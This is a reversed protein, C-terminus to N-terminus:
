RPIRRVRASGGDTFYIAGKPGVAVATPSMNTQLAQLGNGNYGFNGTGAFTHITGSADVTRIRGNNIDVIYLTGAPDVAVDIGFSLMAATAPGGDGGFGQSGNGAVTSIIGNVDVKRIRINLWDAIYVNGTSDVALGTPIFLSSQTAPMGDGNYGFNFVMGAVVTATTDPAIKIVVSADSDSAYLNHNADVALGYVHVGVTVNSGWWALVTVQTVFTTITGTSDVKRIASNGYDSIFLDGNQDVAVAEPSNLTAATAPGGDGSYGSVGTGAITTVTGNLSVKRIRNNFSDAFYLNGASDFAIHGGLFNPAISAETAPRGDGVYGGAITTVIQSSDIKRLRGNYQDVVLLNGSNDFALGFAGVFTANLAPGGDGNFGTAGLPNGAILNIIQTSQDIAWVNSYASVYLKGGALFLGQARGISASTAPGGSGGIGFQGTGAYTTITGNSDVKRVRYSGSDAIYFNGNGDPLVSSPVDLEAAVAPGNDGSTGCGSSGAFTHIVGSADVMRIRCNVTDAIYVNGALDASVGSPFALSAQTAQVGDGSYGAIGNGAITSIVGSRTIKRVRFNLQDAVLLNGQADFSLGAPGNLTALAAPGGDGSFGCTAGGAFKSIVGSKNIRRIQCNNADSIYIGGERDVAVGIPSAFAALTAPRGNGLYGGAVTTVNAAEAIACFTVVLSCLVFLSTGTGKSRHCANNM